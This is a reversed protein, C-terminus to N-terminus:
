LKFQTLKAFHRARAHIEKLKLTRLRDLGFKEVAQQATMRFWRVIGVVIGQHNEIIFCQGLPLAKYRFGRTRGYLRGDIKDIFMFGNGYAGLSRYLQQNQGTFNALPDYRLKFLIKTVQEFWLRTARDKMVYPDNAQLEHWQMNRPTLMSDCIAGFRHNAMMGTADIQQQTKKQGPWNYNGYFFTNRSNPDILEATEEWQSAHNNRWVTLQSFLQLYSRVMEQERQSPTRGPQVFAPGQYAAVLDNSM